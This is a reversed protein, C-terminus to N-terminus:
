GNSSRSKPDDGQSISKKGLQARRELWANTDLKRVSVGCNEHECGVVYGGFGESITVLEKKAKAAADAAVFVAFRTLTGKAAITGDGVDPLPVDQILADLRLASFDEEGIDIKIESLLADLDPTFEGSIAMSNAVINATKEKEIPWDVTRVPFREGGSTVVAGGVLKCGGAKLAVLRQHGAVLHGTRKNWVLGSVDGFQKLSHQLGVLADISIKRPNYPAPKLDDISTLKRNDGM